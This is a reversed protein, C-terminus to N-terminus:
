RFAKVILWLGIASIFFSVIWLLVLGPDSASLPGAIMFVLACVGPLLLPLAIVVMLITVAIDRRM